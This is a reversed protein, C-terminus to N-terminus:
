TTPRCSRCETPTSNIRFTRTSPMSCWWAPTRSSSACSSRTNVYFDDLSTQYVVPAPEACLGPTKEAAALLLGHVQRWPTDYGITLSTTTYVQENGPPRSYNTTTQGVVVANPIVVDENKLTRIRTSLVGLHTVTGESDGIRVFEHLRIARSYTIMFGSMVQDVLGSSGFSVLLGIFM